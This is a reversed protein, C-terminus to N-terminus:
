LKLYQVLDNRGIEILKEDSTTIADVMDQKGLLRERVLADVSGVADIFITTAPQSRIKDLKSLNGDLKIRRHIRDISQKYLTYSYPRDIYISTRARALFDTGTGAKEVTCAAIRPKNKNEFDNAIDSVKVNHYIKVVGYKKNYRDYINDISKRFASWIVVKNEPNEFLEELIRDIEEYKVSNGEENLLNPHNMLQRLRLIGNNNNLFSILNIRTSKPLERIIEGCIVKYLQLQKGTIVVDRIIPPIKDPFGKLDDKTRRISIREVREKLEDLNQFGVIKNVTVRKNSGKKLKKSANKFTMRKKVCYYNEFRSIHPIPDFSLIKLTSYANLPSESIPTGTMPIFRSFKGEHNKINYLLHLIAKTRKTDFNKYMHWEDIIIMDFPIQILFNTIDSYIDNGTKNPNVLNEPHTIMIDWITNKNSKLYEFAQKKGSPLSVIKLNTHKDVERCYGFVVNSPCIVLTRKIKDGLAVITALSILSKGTGMDDFLGARNKSLLYSVGTLQDEYLDTKLKGNLLSRTYDNNIGDKINKDKLIKSKLWESFQYAEETITCGNLLGFSRLKEKLFDLDDYGISFKNGCALERTTLLSKIIIYARTYFENNPDLVVQFKKNELIVDIM